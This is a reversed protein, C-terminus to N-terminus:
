STSRSALTSDMDKPRVQQEMNKSRVQQQLCHQAVQRQEEIDIHFEQASSNHDMKTTQVKSIGVGSTAGQQHGNWINCGKFKFSSTSRQQHLLHKKNLKLDIDNVMTTCDTADIELLVTTSMISWTTSSTTRESTERTSQSKWESVTTSFSTASSTSTRRKSTSTSASAFASSRSLQNDSFIRGFITTHHM